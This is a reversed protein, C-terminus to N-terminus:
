TKKFLGTLVIRRWGKKLVSVFSKIAKRIIKGASKTFLKLGCCINSFLSSIKADQQKSPECNNNM